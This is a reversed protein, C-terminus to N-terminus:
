ILCVIIAAVMMLVRLAINLYINEDGYMYIGTTVINILIVPIAVDLSMIWGIELISSIVVVLVYITKEGLMTEDLADIVPKKILIEMCIPLLLFGVVIKFVCEDKLDFFMRSESQLYDVIYSPLVNIFYVVKSLLIIVIITLIGILMSIFYTSPTKTFSGKKLDKKFFIITLIFVLISSYFISNTECFLNDYTGTEKNQMVAFIVQLIGCVIFGAIAFLGIGTKCKANVDPGYDGTIMAKQMAASHEGCFTCYEENPNLVRYCNKCRIKMFDGKKNINIIVCQLIKTFRLTIIKIIGDM